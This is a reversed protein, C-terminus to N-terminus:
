RLERRVLRILERRGEAKDRRRAADRFLIGGLGALLFSELYLRVLVAARLLAPFRILGHKRLLRWRSRYLQQVRWSTAIPSGGGEHFAVLAPDWRVTWGARRLRMSLDIDVDLFGMAEDAGGVALFAERRLALAATHICIERPKGAPLLRRLWGDVRQGAALSFARPEGSWSPTERGAANVTRFGLIGLRPEGRFAACIAESVDALPYADADFVVALDTELETVARNLTAAFGRREENIRVLIRPDAPMDVPSSPSADDVVVIRALRGSWATLAEVCRVALPWSDFTTVAAGLTPMGAPSSLQPLSL